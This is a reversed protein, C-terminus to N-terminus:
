GPRAQKRRQDVAHRDRGAGRAHDADVRLKLLREARGFADKLNQIGLRIHPVRRAGNLNERGNVAGNRQAIQAEAIISLVIYQAM